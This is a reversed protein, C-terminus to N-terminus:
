GSKMEWSWFIGWWRLILAQGRLSANESELREEFILWLLPSLHCSRLYAFGSPSHLLQGIKCVYPLVKEVEQTCIRLPGWAGSEWTRWLGAGLRSFRIPVLDSHFLINVLNTSSVGRRMQLVEPACLRIPQSHWTSEGLGPKCAPSWFRVICTRRCRQKRVIAEQKCTEPRREPLNWHLRFLTVLHWKIFNCMLQSACDSCYVSAPKILDITKRNSARDEVWYSDDSIGQFDSIGVHWELGLLWLELLHLEWSNISRMSIGAELLRYIKGRERKRSVPLLISSVSFLMWSLMRCSLRHVHATTTEAFEQM